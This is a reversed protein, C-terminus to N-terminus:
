ILKTWILHSSILQILHSSILWTYNLRSSNLKSSTLHFNTLLLEIRILHSAILWSPTLHLEFLVLNTKVIYPPFQHPLVWNTYFTIRNTLKTHLEFSVLHTSIIHPSILESPSTFSLEHLIHHSSDVQHSTYNLYGPQRCGNKV